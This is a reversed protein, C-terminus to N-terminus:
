YIDGQTRRLCLNILFSCCEKIISNRTLITLLRDYNLNIAVRLRNGMQVRQTLSVVPDQFYYQTIIAVHQGLDKSQDVDSATLGKWM